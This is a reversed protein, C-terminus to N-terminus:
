GGDPMKAKLEAARRRAKVAIARAQAETKPVPEGWAAATLAFRTPEGNDDVLPPYKDQGYFRLAWSIWRKKRELNASEYDKVGPKLNGGMAKRGAATLGGKPDKLPKQAKAVGEAEGTEDLEADEDVSGYYNDEDYIYPEYDKMAETLESWISTREEETIDDFVAM